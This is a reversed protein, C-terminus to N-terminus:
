YINSFLQAFLRGDEDKNYSINNTKFYEQADIFAIVWEGAVSPYADVGIMSEVPDEKIVSLKEITKSLKSMANVVSLHIESASVPVTVLISKTIFVEYKKVFTTLTETAEDSGTVAEQFVTLPDQPSDGKLEKMLLGMESGYRRIASTSSDNTVRLDSNNYKKYEIEGTMVGLTSNIIRDVANENIEGDGLVKETMYKAFFEQAFLDTRTLEESAQSNDSSNQLVAVTIASSNRSDEDENDEIGDGDSDKNYPNTNLLVEEWDKLGDGDSDKENEENYLVSFAPVEPDGKQGLQDFNFTKKLVSYGGTGILLIAIISAILISFNRTPM